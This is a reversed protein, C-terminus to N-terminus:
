HNKIYIYFLIPSHSDQVVLSNDIIQASDGSKFIHDVKLTVKYTFDSSDILEISKVNYIPAINYFWNKAKFTTAGIGLTKIKTTDDKGFFSTNNPYDVGSLVSNIRVKIKKSQDKFSRGWAFTNIGINAKDSIIGVVNSCGYFQTLSKSTYSVIGSTADNYTVYLEGYNGFGVTSDVDFTSQGVAVQGIVKTKPHVSFDGYLSGRVRIDRDYGADFGM